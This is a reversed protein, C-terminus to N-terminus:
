ETKQLPNFDPAPAVPTLVPASNFYQPLLPRYKELIPQFDRNTKAFAQLQDIFTRVLPERTKRFELDLKAVAPRQQNVQALLLRRQKFLYFDIGVSLLILAALTVVLLTQLAHFQERLQQLEPLGASSAPTQALDSQPDPSNM